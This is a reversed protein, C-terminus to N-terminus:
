RRSSGPVHRDLELETQKQKMWWVELNRNKEETGEQWCDDEEEIRKRPVVEGEVENRWVAGKKMSRRLCRDQMENRAWRQRNVRARESRGGRASPCGGPGDADQSGKGAGITNTEYM